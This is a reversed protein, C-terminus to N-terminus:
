LQACPESSFAASNPVLSKGKMARDTWKRPATAAGEAAGEAGGEAAGEASRLPCLQIDKGFGCFVHLATPCVGILGKLILTFIPGANWSSIQIPREPDSTRDVSLDYHGTSQCLGGTASRRSAPGYLICSITDSASIIM